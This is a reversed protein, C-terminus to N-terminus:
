VLNRREAMGLGSGRWCRCRSIRVPSTGLGILGGLPQRKWVRQGIAWNGMQESWAGSKSSLALPWQAAQWKASRVLSSSFSVPNTAGAM